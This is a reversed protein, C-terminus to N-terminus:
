FIIISQVICMYCMRTKIVPCVMSLATPTYLYALGHTSNTYVWETVIPVQSSPNTELQVWPTSNHMSHPQCHLPLVVIVSLRSITMQCLVDSQQIPLLLRNFVMIEDANLSDPGVLLGAHINARAWVLGVWALPRTWLSTIERCFYPEQNTSASNGAIYFFQLTRSSPIFTRWM